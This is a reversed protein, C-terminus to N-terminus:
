GVEVGADPVDRRECMPVNGYDRGIDLALNPPRASRCGCPVSGQPLFCM